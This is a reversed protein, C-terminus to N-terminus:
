STSNMKLANKLDSVHWYKCIVGHSTKAKLFFSLLTMGVMGHHYFGATFVPSLHQENWESTYSRKLIVSCCFFGSRSTRIHSRYRV